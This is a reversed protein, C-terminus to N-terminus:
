QVLALEAIAYLTYVLGLPNGRALLDLRSELLAKGAKGAEGGGLFRKLFLRAMEGALLEFVPIETGIM